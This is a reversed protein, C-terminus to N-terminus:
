ADELADSESRETVLEPEQSSDALLTKLLIIAKNLNPCTGYVKGAGTASKVLSVVITTDQFLEDGM